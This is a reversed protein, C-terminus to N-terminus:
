QRIYVDRYVVGDDNDVLIMSNDDFEVQILVTENDETISYTGSGSNEWTGSQSFDLECGNGFDDYGTASFTGNSSIVIIELDSCPRLEQEVGDEFSKSSKWSGIFLDESSGDDDSNCSTFVLVLISLLLILKKM